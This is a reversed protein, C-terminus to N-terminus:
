YSGYPKSSEPKLKTKEVVVADHFFEKVLPRPCEEEASKRETASLKDDWPHTWRRYLARLHGRLKGQDCGVPPKVDMAECVKDWKHLKDCTALGGNLKVLDYIKALDVPQKQVMAKLWWESDEETLEIVGEIFHGSLWEYEFGLRKPLNCRNADREIAVLYRCLGSTDPLSKFALNIIDIQLRVPQGEPRIHKDFKELVQSGLVPVGRRDAFCYIEVFAKSVEEATLKTSSGLQLFNLDGTKLWTRFIGFLDLREGLFIENTTAERFHGTLAAKFYSSKNCLLTKGISFCHGEVHVQVEIFEEKNLFHLPIWSEVPLDESGDEVDSYYGSSGVDFSPAPKPSPTLSSSKTLLDGLGHDPADDAAKKAVM